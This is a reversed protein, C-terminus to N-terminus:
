SPTAHQHRQIGQAFAAAQRFVRRFGQSQQFAAQLLDLFGDGRQQDLRAVLAPRQGWMVQFVHAGQDMGLHQLFRLVQVPAGLQRVAHLGAQRWIRMLRSSLATWAVASCPRVRHLDGRAVAAKDQTDDVLGFRNRALAHFMQKFRKDGGSLPAM